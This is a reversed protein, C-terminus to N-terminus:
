ILVLIDDEPVYALTPKSRPYLKKAHKWVLRPNAGSAVIKDGIIAVHKGHFRNNIEPAHSVYFRLEKAGAEITGNGKVHNKSAM